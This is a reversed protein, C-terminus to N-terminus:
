AKRVLRASFAGDFGNKGPLLSIYGKDHVVEHFEDPLIEIASQLQWEPHANLFKEILVQNEEPEISCTSYVIAADPKAMKAANELLQYQLNSLAALDAESLRWRLEARRSLVGTGTCPADLLIADFGEEHSFRTADHKITSIIDIGLASALRDIDELKNDYLDLSTIQGANAMMEALYTSKGGPAACMDLVKQGPQPNLLRCALAQAESQVSVEGTSLFPELDFFRDPIVFDPLISKRFTVNEALLKQQFKEPANKLRNIRFAIRPILNNAEMINQAELFGYTSIWRELLWRPHSYKLAIQDAFTGGQISFDVSELNNSINRLVGNVLNGLFQGKLKKALEVSENVAAWRPVKSLFLLQYAGIRLINKVDIDMKDYDHRYFQKIVHDIKMKERLTGYVIQMTFARDVPELATISFFHNLATDSKAHNVEVERLAQVAIERAKMM